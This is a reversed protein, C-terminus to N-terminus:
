QYDDYYYDDDDETEEFFSQIWTILYSVKEKFFNKIRVLPRKKM